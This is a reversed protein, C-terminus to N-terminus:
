TAKNRVCKKSSRKAAPITLPPVTRSAASDAILQALHSARTESRKASVVWHIAARRYWPPQGEFFSAAKKNARLTAAEKPALMASEKREFSYVGTREPTRAAFARRGAPAMQGLKELAAVRAVNVASWISRPKRTHVLVHERQFRLM